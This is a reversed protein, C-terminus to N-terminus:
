RRKTDSYHLNGFLRALDKRNRTRCYARLTTATKGLLETIERPTRGEALLQDIELIRPDDPDDIIKIKTWGKHERRFLTELDKRGYRRCYQELANASMGLTEVVEAPTLGAALLHDIEELRHKSRVNPKHKPEPEEFTLTDQELAEVVPLRRGQPIAAFYADLSDTEKVSWDKINGEIWVYGGCIGDYYSRLPDVLKLCEVRMPCTECTSLGLEADPWEVMDFIGSPLDRCPAPGPLEPYRM